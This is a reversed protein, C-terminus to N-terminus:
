WGETTRAIAADVVQKIALLRADEETSVADPDGGVFYSAGGRVGEANWLEQNKVRDRLTMNVTLLVVYEDAKEESNFGFVRNEYGTITGLLVADANGQVVRLTNDSVFRDILATTLEEALVVELTQNDVVPVELTKIHSPLSSQHFSYCGPTGLLLLLVLRRVTTMSM